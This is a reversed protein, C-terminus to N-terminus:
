MDVSKNIFLTTIKEDFSLNDCNDLIEISDIGNVFPARKPTSGFVEPM